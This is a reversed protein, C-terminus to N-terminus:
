ALDHGSRTLATLAILVLAGKPPPPIPTPCCGGMKHLTSASPLEYLPWSLPLCVVYQM